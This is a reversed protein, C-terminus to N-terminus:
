YRHYLAQRALSVIADRGEETLPAANLATLAQEYRRDIEDEIAKAAGTEQLIRRIEEAGQSDLGDSGYLALLQTRQEDDAARLAHALLATPKGEGLDDFSGHTRGDGFAGLLDNRFQHGESLLSGATLYALDVEPAAGALAAGMRLPPAIYYVGNKYQAILLAQEYDFDRRAGAVLELIQGCCTDRNVAHWLDRVVQLGDTPPLSDLLAMAWDQCLAGLAIAGSDGYQGSSGYWGEQAHRTALLARATPRGRRMLGRDMVDDYLLFATQTVELAAGVTYVTGADAAGGAARWGWYCFRSRFRKGLPNAVLARAARFHDELGLRVFLPEQQELFRTIVAEVEAGVGDLGDSM